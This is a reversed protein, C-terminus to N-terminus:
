DDSELPKNAPLYVCHPAGSLDLGEKGAANGSSHFRQVRCQEALLPDVTDRQQAIEPSEIMIIAMGAYLHWVIHCHFFWTGPNDDRYRFIVYTNADVLVTDREM